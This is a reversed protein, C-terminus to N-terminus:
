RQSGGAQVGNSGSRGGGSGASQGGAQGGAQGAGSGGGSPGGTGGGTPAVGSTQGGIANTAGTPNVVHTVIEISRTEDEPDEGWWVRLRVERIYNGLLDSIMDPSIGFNSLDPAAAQANAEKKVEDPLLDGTLDGVLGGIDTPVNLDIQRVTFAWSYAGIDDPLEGPLADGSRFDENGFQAFDGEEEYDDVGFGNREVLVLIESMKEEALMSALRIRDAETTMMVSTTQTQVLVALAVTLISLAIIVELLTFARRHRRDTM